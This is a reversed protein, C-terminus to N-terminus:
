HPGRGFGVSGPYFLTQPLRDTSFSSFAANEAYILRIPSHAKFSGYFLALNKRIEDKQPKKWPDFVEIRAMYLFLDSFGSTKYMKRKFSGTFVSFAGNM